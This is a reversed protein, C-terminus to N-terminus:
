KEFRQLILYYALFALSISFAMIALSHIDLPKTYYVGLLGGGTGALIAFWKLHIFKQETNKTQLISSAVSEPVGKDVIKNKLRHELIRKLFALIFGMFALLVFIAASVQFIEENFGDGAYVIFAAQVLTATIVIKKM